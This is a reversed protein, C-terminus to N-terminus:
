SMRDFRQSASSQRMSSTGSAIRGATFGDLPSNPSVAAGRMRMCADQLDKTAREIPAWDKQGAAVLVVFINAGASFADSAQNGVVLGAFDREARARLIEDKLFSFYQRGDPTMSM